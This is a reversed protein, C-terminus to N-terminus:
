MWPNRAQWYGDIALERWDTLEQRIYGEAERPQLGLSNGCFYIVERDNHRPFYFRSRFGKLEDERDQQQAYALTPEVIEPM